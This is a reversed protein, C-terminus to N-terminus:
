NIGHNISQGANGYPFFEVMGTMGARKLAAKGRPVRLLDISTEAAVGSRASSSSKRVSSPIEMGPGNQCTSCEWAASFTSKDPLNEQQTTGKACVHVVDWELHASSTLELRWSLPLRLKQLRQLLMRTSVFEVAELIGLWISMWSSFRFNLEHIGRQLPIGSSSLNETILIPMKIGGNM